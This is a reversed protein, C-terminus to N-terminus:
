NLNYLKIIYKLNAYGTRPDVMIYIHKDYRNKIRIHYDEGIETDYQEEFITIYRIIDEDNIKEILDYINNIEVGGLYIKKDKKYLDDLPNKKVDKLINQIKNMKYNDNSKYIASIEDMQQIPINGDKIIDYLKNCIYELTENDRKTGIIGMLDSINEHLENNRDILDQKLCKTNKALKDM